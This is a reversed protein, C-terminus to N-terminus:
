FERGLSRVFARAEAEFSKDLQAAQRAATIAPDIQGIRAYAVALSAFYQPNKPQLKILSEYLEAIKEFDGLKVYVDLIRLTEIENDKYPYNADEIINLGKQVEGSEINSIGLYWWSLKVNPNLKAAREFWEIATPYDKKNLYVQAIEYHTRIFTPSIEFARMSNELALDNYRSGSDGKGLLIYVRSIYLYPLYDQPSEAVNKKINEIAVFLQERMKEDIKSSQTRELIYQAYRHRIDYKGFTNFSMAKKFKEFAVDHDGRWSAVIARTTAYNARAPLINVYYILAALVIFLSIGAVSSILSRKATLNNKNQTNSGNKLDSEHNSIFLNNIFGLLTFFMLYNASTDFIFSNHIIYATLTSILGIRFITARKDKQLNPNRLKKFAFIYIALYAVFAVLGMTFMIELFQNHARDFLTESGVGRFFLPNFHKSFPVNFMEPGWGLFITKLSDNWGDFGARWAWFRTQVTYAKPSIDAYRALYKNSKIFDVNRLSYLIGAVLIVLVLFGITLKKVKNSGFGLSYLFGFLLVGVIVALVSGRVGTLLVAFADLVFVSGYFIKGNKSSGPWFYLMLGLFASVIMYGAFLAPNGITGFIKARGGSGIVWSTDTKQLFGYLASLISALLLLKIFTIWDKKNKLVATSIVFFAWFHLFSFWGGMRELTGFFSQYINVSTFTTLGFAATFITIAWFLKTLPPLYYRGYKIFLILYFVALVEMLSRFVLVKGFHFPSIYQSFIVLPIFATLFLGYKTIKVLTPDAFYRGSYSNPM